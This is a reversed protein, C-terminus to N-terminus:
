FSVRKNTHKRPLFLPSALPQKACNWSSWWGFLGGERVFLLMTNRTYVVSLCEIGPSHLRPWRKLKYRPRKKDSKGNRRNPWEDRHWPSICGVVVACFFLVCFVNL